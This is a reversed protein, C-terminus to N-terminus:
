KRKTNIFAVVLSAIAFVLLLMENVSMLRGGKRPSAFRRGNKAAGKVM